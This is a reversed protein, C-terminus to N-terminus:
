LPRNPSFPDVEQRLDVINLRFGIYGGIAGTQFGRLGIGNSLLSAKLGATGLEYLRTRDQIVGLKIVIAGLSKVLLGQYGFLIEVGLFSGVVCSDGAYSLELRADSLVLRLLIRRFALDALGLCRQRARAVYKRLGAIDSRVIPQNGTQRYTFTFRDHDADLVGQAASQHREGIHRHNGSLNLDVFGVDTLTLSPCSASTVM